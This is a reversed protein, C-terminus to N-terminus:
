KNLENIRQEIEAKLAPIKILPLSKKYWVVAEAKNGKREYADALTLLAEINQPQLQAVKEFREIAKDFQGSLVSARGLTMQAYVNSPDKDAVQRVKQIGEMPSGIGGYLITAGLGVQASDNIPDIKLSREFLDQAQLAEWRKLEPSEEVTLNDLFLRAAFTLSNRSNELRAAEATYWAYPEFRRGTDSWFRALQHYAHAKDAPYQAGSLSKELEALRRLQEPKLAEKAHHLVTDISLGNAVTQRQPASAERKKVGFIRNQTLAYLGLILLFVVGAMM